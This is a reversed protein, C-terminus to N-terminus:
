VISALRPFDCQKKHARLPDHINAQQRKYDLVALKPATQIILTNNTLVAPFVKTTTYQVPFNQLAYKRSFRAEHVYAKINVTGM